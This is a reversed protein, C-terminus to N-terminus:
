NQYYNVNNRARTINHYNEKANKYEDSGQEYIESSLINRVTIYNRINSKVFMAEELSDCVFAYHTGNYNLHVIHKKITM